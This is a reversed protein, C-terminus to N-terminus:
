LDVEGTLVIKLHESVTHLVNESYWKRKVRHFTDLGNNEMFFDLAANLSTRWFM